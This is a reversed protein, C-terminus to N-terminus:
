CESGPFTREGTYYPSLNRQVNLDVGVAAEFEGGVRQGGATFIQAKIVDDYAAESWQMWTVVINGNSLVGVGPAIQGGGTTTNVVVEPGLPTAEASFRQMVVGWGSGDQRWSEWVAVFGEATERLSLTQQDGYTTSNLRFEAGQPQGFVDFRQAYLGKGSQDQEDSVWATLYGGDPLAVTIPRSENNATTTNALVAGGIPLYNGPM